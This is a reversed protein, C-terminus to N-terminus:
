PATRPWPQRRELHAALALLLPERGPRAVLQVAMPTGTTPHLGTPVSMAPFGALNWAAAFPAYRTNVLMSTAWNEESWVKAEPPPAALTPTMLIDYSTLLQEAAMRWDSRAQEGLMGREALRRGIEAHRRTRPELRDLDLHQADAWTGAFWHALAANAARTPIKLTMREVDHGDRDLLVATRFLSRVLETDVTIGPLPARASVAVRLRPLEPIEAYSPEDAMVSLLLAADAVTTALPGNEAMGYWSGDGLEAPVVGTGPKITVLGTCAAPIRLSGMGDAAHAVPVQGSAVAAASGGSSGGPTLAHDWPNRTVGYASDTVGWVCLEPVKTIGVVVAGADRLRAVVPHDAPQPFPDTAISGVRMPEGEVPINDKIAVPVGALPLGSKDGADVAEAERAAAERRVVQFAGLVGDREEIRRVSERLVDAATLRGSRVAEAIGTATWEPLTVDSPATVGRDL